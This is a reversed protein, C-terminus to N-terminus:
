QGSYLFTNTHGGIVVDIDEVEKAVQQDVEIGAHGLAIIKNIGSAKLKAACAKVSMIEDNFKINPGPKSYRSDFTASVLNAYDALGTCLNKRM